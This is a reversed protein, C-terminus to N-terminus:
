PLSHFRALRWFFRPIGVLYRRWLRRPEILLRGLWEFGYNTMWAPARRLSGAVYDFVAGGTLGVHADIANWHAQLWYEQEPMGFGVLLIDPKVRNIAEIVQLSEPSNPEKDFFGHAVGAIKLLPFRHQLREAAVQAVGLRAGLLYLSFGQESCLAALHWIWDAYTIRPPMTHGLLRAAVRVGFGDCFVLEAENLIRQLEPQEFALNLCNVNVNLLLAHQQSRILETIQANLEERNIQHVRTGLISVGPFSNITSNPETPM